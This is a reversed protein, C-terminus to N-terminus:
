DECNSTADTSRYLVKLLTQWTVVSETRTSGIDPEKFKATGNKPKKSDRFTNLGKSKKKSDISKESEMDREKHKKDEMKLNQSKNNSDKSKKRSNKDRKKSDSSETGSDKSRRRSAKDKKENKHKVNSDKSRKRLDKDIQKSGSSKSISDISNKKINKDKKVTDLEADKSKRKSAKDLNRSKNRSDKGKKKGNKSDSSEVDSEKSTKKKNADKMNVSVEKTETHPEKDKPSDTGSKLKSEGSGKSVNDYGRSSIDNVTDLLKTKSEKPSDAMKKESTKEAQTKEKKYMQKKEGPSPDTSKSARQPATFFPPRRRAALYASPKESIQLLSRSMWIPTAKQDDKVALEVPSYQRLESPTSRWKKGPRNPKPFMLSFHQQNWYKKNVDGVPIYNKYSGFGVRKMKEQLGM